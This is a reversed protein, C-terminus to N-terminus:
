DPWVPMDPWQAPNKARVMGPRAAAFAALVLLSFLFIYFVTLFNASQGAEYVRFALLQAQTTIEETRPM